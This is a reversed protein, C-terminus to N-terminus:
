AEGEAESGLEQAAEVPDPGNEDEQHLRTERHEFNAIHVHLVGPINEELHWGQFLEGRLIDGQRTTVTSLLQFLQEFRLRIVKQDVWLVNQVSRDARENPPEPYTANEIKLVRVKFTM